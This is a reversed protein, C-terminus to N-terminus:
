DECFHVTLKIYVLWDFIFFRNLHKETTKINRHQFDFCTDDAYLLLESDVAQAMDKIYILFHLPGLNSRTTCWM